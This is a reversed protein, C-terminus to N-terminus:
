SPRSDPDPAPPKGSKLEAYRQKWEAYDGTPIELTELRRLAELRQRRQEPGLCYQVISERVVAALKKGARRAIEAVRAYDEPELTVQIKQTKSM